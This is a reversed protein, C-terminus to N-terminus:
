KTSQGTTKGHMRGRSLVNTDDKIKFNSRVGTKRNVDFHIETKTGDGHDHNYKYKDYTGSVKDYKPDSLNMTMKEGKGSKAEDLALKEQLDLPKNRAGRPPKNTKDAGNRIGMKLWGIPGTVIESAVEKIEEQCKERIDDRYIDWKANNPDEKFKLVPHNKDDWRGKFTYSNGNFEIHSEYSVYEGTIAKLWNSEEKRYNTIKTKGTKNDIKLTYHFIELGELEVCDILRNESFAYSSNWPFDKSLPDVAFFRGLRPDHIRYEFNVSNGEGKIEDDMEQNQFGFRYNGSGLVTSTRENLLVTNKFINPTSKFM